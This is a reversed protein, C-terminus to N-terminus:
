ARQLRHHVDEGKPLEIPLEPLPRTAIKDRIGDVTAAIFPLRGALLEYLTVGASWIDSRADLEKGEHQEPSMYPVTGARNSQNSGRKLVAIGFDVVKTTGDRLIFTNAPKIDRHIVGCLHAHNLADCIEAVIQLKRTLPLSPTSRILQNLPVGDLYEM